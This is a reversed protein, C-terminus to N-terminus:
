RGALPSTPARLFVVSNHLSWRDLHVSRRYIAGIVLYPLKWTSRPPMASSEALYWFVNSSTSEKGSCRALRGTLPSANRLGERHTGLGHHIVGYISRPLSKQHISYMIQTSDQLRLFSYLRHVSRHPGLEPTDSRHYDWITALWSSLCIFSNLEAAFM